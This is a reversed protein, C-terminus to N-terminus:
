VTQKQVQEMAWRGKFRLPRKKEKGFCSGERSPWPWGGLSLHCCRCASQPYSPVVPLLPLLRLDAKGLACPRHFVAPSPPLSGVLPDLDKSSSSPCLDDLLCLYERQSTLLTYGTLAASGLPRGGSEYEEKHSFWELRGDGRLVCFTPQWQPPHGWLLTLPGQHERVRPLKKTHSLQCSAPEQPGLEQSIHRLLAAALQRRYCPLFTRLLGDM